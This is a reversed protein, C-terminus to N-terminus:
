SKRKKFIVVRNGSPKTEIDWRRSVTDEINNFMGAFWGNELFILPIQNYCKGVLALTNEKMLEFSPLAMIFRRLLSGHLLESVIKFWKSPPYCRTCYIMSLNNCTQYYETDKLYETSLRLSKEINNDVHSVYLAYCASFEDLHHKYEMVPRLTYLAFELCIFINSIDGKDLYYDLSTTSVELTFNLFREDSLHSQFISVIVERIKRLGHSILDSGPDQEYKLMITKWFEERSDENQQLEQIGEHNGSMRSLLARDKLPDNLIAARAKSSFKEKRLRLRENEENVYGDRIDTRRNSRKM